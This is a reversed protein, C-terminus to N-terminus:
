MQIKDSISICFIRFCTYTSSNLFTFLNIKKAWLIKWQFDKLKKIGHRVFVYCFFLSHNTQFGLNVCAYITFLFFKIARWWFVNWIFNDKSKNRFTKDASYTTGLLKSTTETSLKAVRLLSGQCQGTLLKKHWVIFEEFLLVRLKVKFRYRWKSRM